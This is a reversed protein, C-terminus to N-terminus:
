VVVSRHAKGIQSGSDVAAIQSAGLTGPQIAEAPARHPQRRYIERARKAHQGPQDPRPNARVSLRDANESTSLTSVRSILILINLYTKTQLKAQVQTSQREYAAMIVPM